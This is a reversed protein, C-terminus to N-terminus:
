KGIKRIKILIEIWIAEQDVLGCKHLLYICGQVIQVCQPIHTNPLSYERHISVNTCVNDVVPSILAKAVFYTPMPLKREACLHRKYVYM